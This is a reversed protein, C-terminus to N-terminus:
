PAHAVVVLRKGDGDDVPEFESFMVGDLKDPGTKGASIARIWDKFFDDGPWPLEFTCIRGDPECTKHISKPDTDPSVAAFLELVQTEIFASAAAPSDFPRVSPPIRQTSGRRPGGEEPPAASPSSPRVHPEDHLELDDGLGPLPDAEATTRSPRPAPPAQPAGTSPRTAYLLWAGIAAVLLLAIGAWIRRM